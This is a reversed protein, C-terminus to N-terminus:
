PCKVVGLKMTSNGRLERIYSPLNGGYMLIMNHCTIKNAFMVGDVTFAAFNQELDQDLILAYFVLPGLSREQQVLWLTTAYVQLSSKSGSKTACIDM